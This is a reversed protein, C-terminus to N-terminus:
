AVKEGTKLNYEFQIGGLADRVRIRDFYNQTKMMDHATKGEAASHVVTVYEENGDKTGYVTFSRM